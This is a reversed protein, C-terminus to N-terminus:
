DHNFSLEAIAHSAGAQRVASVSAASSALMSVINSSRGLSTPNATAPLKWCLYLKDESPKLAEATVDEPCSATNCLLVKCGFTKTSQKQCSMSISLHQEAVQESKTIAIVDLKLIQPTAQTSPSQLHQKCM